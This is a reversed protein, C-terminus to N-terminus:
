GVGPQGAPPADLIRQVQAIHERNHAHLLISYAKWDFSEVWTVARLTGDEGACKVVMQVAATAALPLDDTAKSLLDLISEHVARLEQRLALWDLHLPHASQLSAPIAEPVSHGALLRALQDVAPRESEVLHDVVEQVSWASTSRHERAVSAPVAEVLAELEGYTGAVRSRISDVPADTGRKRAYAIARLQEPLLSM